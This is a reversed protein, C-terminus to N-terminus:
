MNMLRYIMMAAEARTIKAKPKFKGDPYGKLTGRAVSYAVDAKAWAIIDNQDSFSAQLNSAPKNRSVNALMIAAQERPISQAPAYQSATFGKTVGNNLAVILEKAYWSNLDVDSFHHQYGATSHMDLARTIMIAFEARTVAQEPKFTGDEYGKILGKGTLATIAVHAFHTESLDSFSYTDQTISNSNTSSPTSNSSSEKTGSSKSENSVSPNGGTSVGGSSGNTNTTGNNANSTDAHEKDKDKDKTPTPNTPSPTGPVTANTGDAPTMVDVNANGVVEETGDKKTKVATINYQYNTSPEVSTEEFGLSGNTETVIGQDETKGTVTNYYTKRYQNEAVKTYTIRPNREVYYTDADSVTKFNFTITYNENSKVPQVVMVPAEAPTNVTITDGQTRGFNNGSYATYTYTQESAVTDDKFATLIGHYVLVNQDRYVDYYTADTVSLMQLKVYGSSVQTAKLGTVPQPAEGAISQKPVNVSIVASESTLNGKRAKIGYTNLTGGTVNMDTFEPLSVKGYLQNNRYVDYSQAGDVAKWKLSIEKYTANVVTLNKPYALSESPTTVHVVVSESNSENNMAVLEYTYTTESAVMKDDWYTSESTGLEVGNRLVKYKKAGSVQDWVLYVHNHAVTVATFGQPKLLEAKTLTISTSATSSTSTGDTAEVTYTYSNGALVDADTFTTNSTVTNLLQGDRKILYSTAGAVADFSIQVEGEVLQAKVNGPATLVTGVLTTAKASVAGSTASGYKAALTYLYSTSPTLGSDKFSTATGSYIEKGARKLVYGTAGSVEVWELEAENATTKMVYLAEPKEYVPDTDLTKVTGTAADSVNTGIVANVTVPYSTSKVLGSVDISTDTTTLTQTGVKVTYSEAGPVQSWSANITTTNIGTVVLKEPTAVGGSTISVDTSKADGALNRAVVTYKYATQAKTSSDIYQTIANGLNAILQGDRYVAFSNTALVLPDWSVTVTKNSVTTTAKVNTPNAPLLLNPLNAKVESTDVWNFGSTSNYYYMIKSDGSFGSALTFDGTQANNVQSYDTFGLGNYVFMTGDSSASVAKYSSSSNSRLVTRVKTDLDIASFTYLNMDFYMGYLKKGDGSLLYPHIGEASGSYIVTSKDTALDYNVTTAANSYGDYIYSLVIKTGEQNLIVPAGTVVPNIDLTNKSGYITPSIMKVSLDATNQVSAVYKTGDYYGYAVKSGDKSISPWGFFIKTSKALQTSTQQATNYGMMKFSATSETEKYIVYSGDASIVPDYLSYTSSILVKVVDDSRDYMYINKGFAWVAQDGDANVSINKFSGQENTPSFTTPIQHPRVADTYANTKDVVVSAASVMSTSLSSTLLVATLLVSGLKKFNM